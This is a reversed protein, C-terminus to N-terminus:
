ARAHHPCHITSSCNKLKIDCNCTGFTAELSKIGELNLHPYAESFWGPVLCWDTSGLNPPSPRSPAAQRPLEGCALALCDMNTIMTRLLIIICFPVQVNSSLQELTQIQSFELFGVAMARWCFSFTSPVVSACSRRM